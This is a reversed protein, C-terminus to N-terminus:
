CAQPTCWSAKGVVGRLRSVNFGLLVKMAALIATCRIATTM